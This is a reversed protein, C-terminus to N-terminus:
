STTLALKRGDKKVRREAQLQKVVPYLGTPEVQMARGLEAVTMGPRRALIEVIRDKRTLRKRAGRPPAPTSKSTGVKRASAGRARKATASGSKGTRGNRASASRSGARARRGSAKTTATKASTARRRGPRKPARRRASGGVSGDALGDVAIGLREAVQKLEDLEALNNQLEKIRKTVRAELTQFESLVSM